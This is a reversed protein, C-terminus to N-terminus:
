PSQLITTEFDALLRSAAEVDTREALGAFVLMLRPEGRVMRVLQFHNPGPLHLQRVSKRLLPDQIEHMGRRVARAAESALTAFNREDGRCVHALSRGTELEIIGAGLTGELRMFARLGQAAAAVEVQLPVGALASFSGVMSGSDAKRDPDALREDVGRSDSAAEQREISEDGSLTVVVPEGSDKRLAAELLLSPLGDHILRAASTVPEEVEIEPSNWSLVEFLAEKSEIGECSANIPRGEHVDVRGQRGEAKVRLSCNRGEASLLQLFGPLSLGTLRGKAPRALISRVVDVFDDVAVPKSLFRFEGGSSLAQSTRGLETEGMIVIEIGAYEELVHSLLEFGDMVPMVLDTVLIDVPRAALVRAAQEGDGSSLVVLEDTMASAGEVLHDRTPKDGAVLLLTKM